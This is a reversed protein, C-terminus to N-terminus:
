QVDNESVMAVDNTIMVWVILLGGACVYVVCSFIASTFIRLLNMAKCWGMAWMIGVYILQKSDHHNTCNFTWWFCDLM